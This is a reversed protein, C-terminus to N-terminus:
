SSTVGPSSFLSETVKLGNAPSSAKNFFLLHHPGPGSRSSSKEIQLDNHDRLCKRNAGGPNIALRRELSGLSSDDQVTKDM